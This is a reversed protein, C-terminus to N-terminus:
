GHVELGREEGESSCNEPIVVGKECLLSRM